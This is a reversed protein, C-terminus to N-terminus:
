CGWGVSSSGLGWLPLDFQEPDCDPAPVPGSVTRNTGRTMTSIIGQGRCPNNTFPKQLSTREKKTRKYYKVCHRACPLCKPINVSPVFAGSDEIIQGRAEEETKARRYGLLHRSLGPQQM